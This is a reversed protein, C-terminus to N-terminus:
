LGGRYRDSSAGAVRALGYPSLPSAPSARGLAAFAQQAPELERAAIFACGRTYLVAPNSPEISM